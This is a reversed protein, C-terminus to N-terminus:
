DVSRREAPQTCPQFTEIFNLIPSDATSGKTCDMLMKSFSSSIADDEEIVKFFQVLFNEGLIDPEFPKLTNRDYSSVLRNSAQEVFTACSVAHSRGRLSSAPLHSRLKNFLVGRLLTATTVYAGIWAGAAFMGENDHLWPLRSPKNFYHKILDRRTWNGFDSRGERIAQGLLAAFLPHRVANPNGGGVGGGMRSLTIEAGVILPDSPKILNGRSSSTTAIIERLFLSGPEEAKLVVPSSEFLISKRRSDIQSQDAFIQGWFLDNQLVQPYVHDVVLLRVKKAQHRHYICRDAIARMVEYYDYTYDIVILTDRSIGWHKWPEPNRDTVFGADWDTDTIEPVFKRMWESVLRTKGAGSPAVLACILFPREDRVFADLINKEANRHSLPISFHNLPNLWVGVDADAANADEESVYLPWHFPGSPRTPIPHVRKVKDAESPLAFGFVATAFEAGMLAPLDIADDLTKARSSHEKNCLFYFHFASAKVADGKDAAFSEELHIDGDKWLIAKGESAASGLAYSKIKELFADFALGTIKAEKLVLSLTKKPGKLNGRYKKRVFSLFTGFHVRGM